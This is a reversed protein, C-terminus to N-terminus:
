KLPRVLIRVPNHDSNLFRLDSAAVDLVELNPSVVFFDIITVLTRGSSYAHAVDRNTPASPDFAWTWGEPLFAPDIEPQIRRVPDATIVTATDFGVPNMNWDGGALVYNGKRYEALMVQRLLGLQAIRHSGDDFAENHTNILVLERGSALRVRSLLFCRDLMFLRVPWSYGGPFAYRTHGEMPYRGFTALASKVRGLPDNIPV